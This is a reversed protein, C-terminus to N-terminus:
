GWVPTASPPPRAQTGRTPGEEYVNKRVPRDTPSRPRPCSRDSSLAAGQGWGSPGAWKRQEPVLVCLLPCLGGQGVPSPLQGPGGPGAGGVTSVPLHSGRVRPFSCRWCCCEQAGLVGAAGARSWVVWPPTDGGQAAPARLEAGHARALGWPPLPRGLDHPEVPQGTGVPIPRAAWRRHPRSKVMWPGARGWGGPHGPGVQSPQVALASGRDPQTEM